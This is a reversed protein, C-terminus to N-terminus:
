REVVRPCDASPPLHLGPNVQAREPRAWAAMLAFHEYACPTIEAWSVGRKQMAFGAALQPDRRDWDSRGPSARWRSPLSIAWGLAAATLAGTMTVRIMSGTRRLCQAMADAGLGAIVWWIPSLARVPHHTPAGDRVDGVVLFALMALVGALSWRWRGRVRRDFVVSLTGLAALVAVEPTETSLARPYGFVKDSLGLESAGTARRFSRVRTLFHLASGHAHENWGMWALPGAVAVLAWTTERVKVERERAALARAFCLAAFLVCAPWAEYRSLSTVLLAAAVWPRARVNSTAIMAAGVLAGTWGEPVMAVGLWANWPLVMALAAGAVAASREVGTARMAAYPAAACAAGLAISVTRSVTLSRGAIAMIGGLFWFPFPLWSTGSPDLKPAHAFQMAIVTRAYDDDSVHSFGIRLVYLGLAIKGLTLLSVDIWVGPAPRRAGAAGESQIM